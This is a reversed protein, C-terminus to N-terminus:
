RGKLSDKLRSITSRNKKKSIDNELKSIIEELSILRQHQAESLGTRLDYKTYDWITGFVLYRSQLNLFVDRSAKLRDIEFLLSEDESRIM